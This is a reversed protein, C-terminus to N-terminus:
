PATAPRRSKPSSPKQRRISDKREDATHGPSTHSSKTKLVIPAGTLGFERRLSKVLFSKYNDMLRGPTNVFLTITLPQTGTQTAYFIKLRRGKIIPPQMQTVARQIIRNLPGTPLKRRTEEAVATAASLTQRLNFGTHASICFAPAFALFPLEAKIATIADSPKGADRLLDWKNLALVIGRAHDLILRAISKDQATPGQSADLMLIVVDARQIQREVQRLGIHDPAERLRSVKRLGATDTLLYSRQEGARTLTFPVDVCDRTTGPLDSVILREDRLLANIFSSKGVNPRGVITIKLREESQSPSSAPPLLAVTEQMLEVIGRNHQASIPLVPFGLRHFEGAEHDHAPSDAKNAALLVPLGIRRLVAAAEEDLPVIGAQLDVVMIAMDATQLAAETQRRIAAAIVRQQSRANDEGSMKFPELGGTDVLMFDRGAQRVPLALRDRTVGSSHHVIAVRRGALRNFLASKGVNPRGVIAVVPLDPTPTSDSFPTSPTEM